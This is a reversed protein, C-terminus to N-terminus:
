NPKRKALAKKAESMIEITQNEIDLAKAEAEAMLNGVASM